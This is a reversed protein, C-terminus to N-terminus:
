RPYPQRRGPQRAARRASSRTARLAEDQLLRQAIYFTDLNFCVALVLAVVILISQTARKYWGSAREMAADFQAALEKELAEVSAISAKASPAASPTPSGKPPHDNGPEELKERV